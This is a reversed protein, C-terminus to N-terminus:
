VAKPKDADGLRFFLAYHNYTCAILYDLTSVPFREEDPDNEWGFSHLYYIQQRPMIVVFHFNHLNNMRVGGVVRQLLHYAM